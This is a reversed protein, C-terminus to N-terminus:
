CHHISRTVITLGRYYLHSQLDRLYTSTQLINLKQLTRLVGYSAIAIDVVHNNWKLNEQFKVELLRTKSVRELQRNSIELKWSLECCM